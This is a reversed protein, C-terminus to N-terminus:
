KAAKNVRQMLRSKKRAAKNKHIIGREVVKDIISTAKKVLEVVNAAKSQLAREVAKLAQKVDRKATLNREHRKASSRVRKKGSKLRKM